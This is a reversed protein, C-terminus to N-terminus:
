ALLLRPLRLAYVQRRPLRLAWVQRRAKAAQRAWAGDLRLALALARGTRRGRLMLGVGCSRGALLHARRLPLASHGFAVGLEGAGPRSNAHLWANHGRSM